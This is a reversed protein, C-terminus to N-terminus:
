TVLLIMRVLLIKTGYQSKYSLNTLPFTVSFDYFFHLFHIRQNNSLDREIIVYCLMCVYVNYEQLWMPNLEKFITPTRTKKEGDISIM